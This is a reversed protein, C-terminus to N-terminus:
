RKGGLMAHHENLLSGLATRLDDVNGGANLREVILSTYKNILGRSGEPLQLLKAAVVNPGDLGRKHTIHLLACYPCLYICDGPRAIWLADELSEFRVKSLCATGPTIHLPASM